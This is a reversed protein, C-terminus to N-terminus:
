SYVASPFIYNVLDGRVEELLCTKLCMGLCPLKMIEM